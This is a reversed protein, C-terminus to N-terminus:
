LLFWEAPVYAADEKRFPVADTGLTYTSNGYRYGVLDKGFAFSLTRQYIRFTVGQEYTEMGCGILEAASRAELYVHNDKDILVPLSTDTFKSRVEGASDEHDLLRVRLFSETYAPEEEAAKASRAPLLPCLLAFVLLAALVKQLLSHSSCRM